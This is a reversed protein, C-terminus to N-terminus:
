IARKLRLANSKSSIFRNITQEKSKQPAYLLTTIVTKQTRQMEIFMYIM